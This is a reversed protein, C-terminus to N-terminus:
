CDNVPSEQSGVGHLPGLDIRDASSVNCFFAPIYGCAEPLFFPLFCTTKEM